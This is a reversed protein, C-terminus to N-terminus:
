AGPVIVSVGHVPILEGPQIERPQPSLLPAPSQALAALPYAFLAAALLVASGFRPVRHNQLFTM